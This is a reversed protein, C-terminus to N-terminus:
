SLMSLAASLVARKFAESPQPLLSFPVLVYSYSVTKSIANLLMWYPVEPNKRTLEGSRMADVLLPVFVDHYAREILLSSRDGRETAGTSFFLGIDPASFVRDIFIGIAREVRERATLGADRLKVTTDIMQVAQEGIQEVAAISLATKSGFHHTMLAPDVGADRAIERM